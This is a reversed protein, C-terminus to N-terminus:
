RRRSLLAAGVAALAVLVGAGPAEQPTPAVVHGETDAQSFHVALLLLATLTWAPASSRAQM